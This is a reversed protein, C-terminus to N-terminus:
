GHVFYRKKPEPTCFEFGFTLFLTTTGQRAFL